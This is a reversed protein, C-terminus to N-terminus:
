IVIKKYWETEGTDSVLLPIGTAVYSSSGRARCKARWVGVCPQSCSEYCRRSDRAGERRVTAAVIRQVFGVNCMAHSRM